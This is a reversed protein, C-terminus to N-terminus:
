GYQKIRDREANICDCGAVYVAPLRQLSEFNENVLGGSIMGNLRLYTAVISRSLPDLISDVCINYYTTLVVWPAVKKNKIKVIDV